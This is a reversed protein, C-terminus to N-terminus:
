RANDGDNVENLKDMIRKCVSERSIGTLEEQQEVSGHRVFVDPIGINIVPVTKGWEALYELVTSGFGGNVYGEELTVLLKTGDAALKLLEEDIPKIFRADIVGVRINKGHLEISVELAREVMRGTALIIVDEGDNLLEWEGPRLPKNEQMGQGMDCADKPYRIAMPGDIELSLRILRRLDRADRPAAIVINPIHKLSCMDLTGQHTEGDSGVLGARDILFTVPLRQLAVDEIIQDYARQLFTSYIAVYPRMGMLALGAAMSVAHEEAIGVDFFRDNYNRAFATMGTGLAMAATLVCIRADSQALASLENAAIDGYRAQESRVPMGTKANFPSIGHYLEPHSQAYEYGYGKKTVIHILVPRYSKKARMLTRSIMAIDHGNIPGQYEFGLADFFKGDIFLSKILDRMKELFRLAPAGMHPVADLANRTGRKFNRYWGSQRLRTLYGSMAGVNHSISMENDNLVVIMRTKSNGADSLAEYCIGGTLAGDGVVAVVNFDDGMIDRARCLGLCTSIATSAHGTACTDYESEDPRLFGSIGDLKRLTDFRDYRGTLLKHAYCQHGVDFVIKDRPADFVKHLAISLEVAGLSSSLHGGNKSVTAIIKERIEGALGDLEGYSLNKIDKPSTIKELM